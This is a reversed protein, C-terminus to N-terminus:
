RGGKLRAIEDKLREVESRLQVLETLLNKASGGTGDMLPQVPIQPVAGAESAQQPSPRAAPSSAPGNGIEVVGENATLERCKGKDFPSLAKRTNFCASPNLVYNWGTCRDAEEGRLRTEEQRCADSDSGAFAASGALITMLMMVVKLRKM